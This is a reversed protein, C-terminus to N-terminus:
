IHDSGKWRTQQSSFHGFDLSYTCSDAVKEQKPSGASVHLNNTSAAVADYREPCLASSFFIAYSYVSSM